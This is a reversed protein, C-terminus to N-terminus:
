SRILNCPSGPKDSEITPPAPKALGGPAAGLLLDPTPYTLSLPVEKGLPSTLTSYTMFFALCGVDLGPNAGLWYDILILVGVVVCCRM